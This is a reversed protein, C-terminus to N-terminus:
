RHTERIDVAGLHRETERKVLTSEVILTVTIGDEAILVGIITIVNSNIANIEIISGVATMGEAGETVKIALTGTRVM